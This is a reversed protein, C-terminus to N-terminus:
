EYIYTPIYPSYKSINSHACGVIKREELMKLYEDMYELTGIVTFFDPHIADFIGGKTQLSIAPNHNKGYPNLPIPNKM